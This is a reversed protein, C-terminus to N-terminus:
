SKKATGKGNRELSKWAQGLLALGIAGGATAGVTGLTAWGLKDVGKEKLWNTVPSRLREGTETEPPKYFRDLIRRMRGSEQPVSPDYEPPNYFRRLFEAM